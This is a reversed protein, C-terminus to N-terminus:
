AIVLQERSNNKLSLLHYPEEVHISVVFNKSSFMTTRIYVNECTTLCIKSDISCNTRYKSLMTDFM